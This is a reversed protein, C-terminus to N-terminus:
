FHFENEAPVEIPITYVAAGLAGVGVTGGIAGVVGTNGAVPGGTIGDVPPFIMLPNIEMVARNGDVPNFSFGPLLTISDTATYIHSKYNNLATDIVFYRDKNEYDYYYDQANISISAIFLAINLMIYKKM